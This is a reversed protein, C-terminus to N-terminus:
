FLHSYLVHEIVLLKMMHVRGGGGGKGDWMCVNKKCLDRNTSAHTICLSSTIYFTFGCLIVM